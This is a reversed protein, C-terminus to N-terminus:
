VHLTTIWQRCMPCDRLSLNINPPLKSICELCLIHRCNTITRTAGYCVCCEGINLVITESENFESMFALLMEDNKYLHHDTIFVGNVKDIVLAKLKLLVDCVMKLVFLKKKDDPMRYQTEFLSCYLIFDVPLIRLTYMQDTEKYLTVTVEINKISKIPLTLTEGVALANLRDCMSRVIENSNPPSPPVRRM